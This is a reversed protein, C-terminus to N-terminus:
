QEVWSSFTLSSTTAPFIFVFLFLNVLWMEQLKCQRLAWNCKCLSACWGVGYPEWRCYSRHWKSSSVSVYILRLCTAKGTMSVWKAFVRKCSVPRTVRWNVAMEVLVSRVLGAAAPHLAVKICQNECSWDSNCIFSPEVFESCFGCCNNVLMGVGSYMSTKRQYWDPQWDAYM